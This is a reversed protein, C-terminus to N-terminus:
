ERRAEASALQTAGSGEADAATRERSAAAEIVARYLQALREWHFRDVRAVDASTPAFLAREIAAEIGAINQPEACVGAGSEELLEHLAADRPALGLIPRGSAMYDYVKYPTSYTMHESVVALLLHARQLEVRLEQFPIRPREEAFEELGAGRIRQKEHAPLPGYNTLRIAREPHRASVQRIAQLLPVLSRSGYIEGAHLIRLAGSTDPASLKEVADFGNPIAVSGADNAFPFERLYWELMAPTNLVRAASQRVLRREIRAALWQSIPGRHWAPWDYASWPDRYDLILPWGLRRAIRGGAIMAAHPPSTAIVLGQRSELPLKSVVDLAKRTAAGAWFFDMGVAALLRRSLANVIRAGLGKGKRPLELPNAVRHVPGHAPLSHDERGYASDGIENAIVHVEFGMRTFERTLFSFRKAGVLPSPAFHYSVILLTPRTM